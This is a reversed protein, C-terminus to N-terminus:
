KTVTIGRPDDAYDAESDSRDFLDAEAFAQAVILERIPRTENALDFRVRQNILENSFESVVAGMDIDVRKRSFHINIVTEDHQQVELFLYCRDTFAYCVRFLVEIPYIKTNVSLGLSSDTREYIWSAATENKPTFM